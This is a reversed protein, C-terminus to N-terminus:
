IIYNKHEVVKNQQQTKSTSSEHKIGKKDYFNACDENKFECGHDSKIKRIMKIIQGKENMLRKCLKRFEEFTNFKERLFRVGIYRLFDDVCTLVINETISEIQMPTILDM